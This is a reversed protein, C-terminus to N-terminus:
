HWGPGCHKGRLCECVQPCRPIELTVRWQFFAFVSKNVEDVWPYIDEVNHELIMGNIM